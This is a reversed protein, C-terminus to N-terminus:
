MDMNKILNDKIEVWSEYRVHADAAKPIFSSLRPDAIFHIRHTDPSHSAVSTHNPPLDDIFNTGQCIKDAITKVMPGKSGKNAIVPYNMGLNKLSRERRDRCREPVNSLVLINFYESLVALSDAASEVAPIDDVCEDFFDSILGKVTAQDAAQGSGQKYINGLLQFSELKLDYGKTPFFTEMREVFRLLVEDADVILAPRSSDLSKIIQEAINGSM